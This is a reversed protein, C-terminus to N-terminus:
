CSLPLEWDLLLGLVSERRACTQINGKITVQVMTVTFKLQIVHVVIIFAAICYITTFNRPRQMYNQFSAAITMVYFTLFYVLRNQLWGVTQARNKEKMLFDWLSRPYM